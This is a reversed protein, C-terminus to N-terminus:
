GNVRRSKKYGQMLKWRFTGNPEGPFHTEVYDDLLNNSIINPIILCDIYDSQTYSRGCKPEKSRMDSGGYLTGIMRIRNIHLDQNIAGCEGVCAQWQISKDVDSLKLSASVDLLLDMHRNGDFIEADFLLNILVRFCRSEYARMCEYAAAAAKKKSESSPNTVWAWKGDVVGLTPGPRLGPMREDEREDEDERGRKRTPGSLINACSAVEDDTATDADAIAPSFQRLAEEMYVHIDPHSTLESVFAEWALERDQRSEKPLGCDFALAEVVKDPMIPAEGDGSEKCMNLYRACEDMGAKDMDLLGVHTVYLAWLSSYLKVGITTSTVTGGGIVDKLLYEIAVLPYPTAIMPEYVLQSHIRQVTAAHAVHFIAGFGVSLHSYSLIRLDIADGSGKVDMYKKGSPHGIVVEHPNTDTELGLEAERKAIRKLVSKTFNVSRTIEEDEEDEEDMVQKGALNLTEMLEELNEPLENSDGTGEPAVTGREGNSVEMNTAENEDKGM